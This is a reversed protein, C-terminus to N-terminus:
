ALRPEDSLGKVAELTPEGLGRMLLSGDARESVCPGEKAPTLGECDSFGKAGSLRQRGALALM